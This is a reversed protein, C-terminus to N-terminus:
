SIVRRGIPNSFMLAWLVELVHGADRRAPDHNHKMEGTTDSQLLSRDHDKAWQLLQQYFELPHQSIADRTVQFQACCKTFWHKPLPGLEPEFVDGWVSRITEMQPPSHEVIDPCLENEPVLRKRREQQQSDAEMDDVELPPAESDEILCPAASPLFAIGGHAAAAGWDWRHMLTEKPLPDHWDMRGAQMFTVSEPLADYNEVIYSLYKSAENGVNEVFHPASPDKSQYVYVDLNSPLHQLWSVDEEYKAVVVHHRQVSAEPTANTTAHPVSMNALGKAMDVVSALFTADMPAEIAGPEDRMHTQRHRTVAHAQHSCMEVFLLGISFWTCLWRMIHM